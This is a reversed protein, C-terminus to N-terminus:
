IGTVKCFASARYIVLVLREEARIALKNYIFFDSHSDTAEIRIGEKRYLQSYGTFDGVLGTNETIAPTVVVNLGWMREPGPESPNGWIYVGDATRLLRVDQWDNPHIVIGTPDAYGTWRVLTLAKYFADPVPDSGKAQTQVGTKTLFGQLQPSTGTGTLLQDEEKLKLMLTLRNDIVSRIQPVDALQEETIPIWVAIKEVPQSRETYALAAEPKAGGEAVSAAANTFTTEEMFKVSTVTITDTPILDAIVPRRTPTFEVRPGRPVHPSWGADRSMTTKLEMSGAFDCDKLTIEEVEVPSVRNASKRGYEDSDVFSQGLSKFAAKRQSIEPDDAGIRGFGLRNAKDLEGLIQANKKAMEEANRANEYKKGLETLEDNRTNVEAVINEPMDYGGDKQHKKFIDALETRKTHLERGLELVTPM